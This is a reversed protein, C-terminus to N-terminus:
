DGKPIAVSEATGSLRRSEELTVQDAVHLGVQPLATTRRYLRRGLCDAIGCLLQFEHVVFGNSGTKDGAASSDTFQLLTRWGTEEGTYITTIFVM